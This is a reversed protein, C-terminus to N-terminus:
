RIVPSDHDLNLKAKNTIPNQSVAMKRHLDAHIKSEKVTKEYERINASTHSQLEQGKRGYYYPHAEYQKLVEKNEQLNTEAEKAINEYHKVLAAHDNHNIENQAMVSSAFMSLTLLPLLTLFKLTRMSLVRWTDVFSPM